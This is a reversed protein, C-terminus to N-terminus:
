KSEKELEVIAADISKSVADYEKGGNGHNNLDVAAYDDLLSTVIKAVTTKRDSDDMAKVFDKTSMLLEGVQHLSKDAADDNGAAFEDRITDRLSTIEKIAEELSKVAHDHDGDAHDHDHEGDADDHDHDDHDGDATEAAPTSPKNECGPLFAFCLAALFGTTMTLSKFTM